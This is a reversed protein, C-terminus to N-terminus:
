SLIILMVNDFLFGVDACFFYGLTLEVPLFTTSLFFTFESNTGLLKENFL